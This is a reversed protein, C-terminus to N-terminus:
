LLERDELDLHSHGQQDFGAASHPQGGCGLEQDFVGGPQEFPDLQDLGLQGREATRSRASNPQGDELRGCEADDRLRQRQQGELMRGKADLDGLAFGLTRKGSHPRAFEVEHDGFLIGAVRCRAALFEVALGEAPVHDAEAGGTGVDAGQLIGPVEGPDHLRAASGRPVPCLLGAPQRSEFRIHPELGGVQLSVDAQDLRPM